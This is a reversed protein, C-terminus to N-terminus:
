KDLECSLDNLGYHGNRHVTTQRQKTASDTFKFAWYKRNKVERNANSLSAMGHWVFWFKIIKEQFKEWNEIKGLNKWATKFFQLIKAKISPLILSRTRFSLIWISLKEASWLNTLKLSLFISTCLKEWFLIFFMLPFCDPFHSNSFPLKPLNKSFSGITSGTYTSKNFSFDFALSSLSTIADSYFAAIRYIVWEHYSHCSFVKHIKMYLVACAYITHM